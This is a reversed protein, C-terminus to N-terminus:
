YVPTPRHLGARDTVWGNQNKPAAKVADTGEVDLRGGMRAFGKVKIDLSDHGGPMSGLDFAAM